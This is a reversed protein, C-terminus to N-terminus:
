WLGGGTRHREGNCWPTCQCYRVAGVDRSHMIEVTQGETQTRNEEFAEGVSRVTLSSRYIGIM